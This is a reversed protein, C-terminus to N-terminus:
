QLGLASDCKSRILFIAQTESIEPASKRVFLIISEMATQHRVLLERTEGDPSFVMYACFEEDETFRDLPSTVQGSATTAVRLAWLSILLKKLMKRLFAM